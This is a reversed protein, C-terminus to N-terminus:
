LDAHNSASVERSTCGRCDSSFCATAIQAEVNNLGNPIMMENKGM